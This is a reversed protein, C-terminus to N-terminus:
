RIYCVFPISSTPDGNVQQKPSPAERLADARPNFTPQDDDDNIDYGRSLTSTRTGPHDNSNNSKSSM